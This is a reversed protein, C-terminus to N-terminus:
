INRNPIAFLFRRSEKLGKGEDMFYLVGEFSLPEGSGSLDEVCIRLFPIESGKVSEEFAYLFYNEEATMQYRNDGLKEANTDVLSYNM